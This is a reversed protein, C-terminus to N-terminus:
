INGTLVEKNVNDLLTGKSMVMVPKNLHNVIATDHTAVVVTTGHLNIKQLLKVIEISSKEDLNGTPEDALLIPPSNVIARALCSKQLEGGSLENPFHHAKDELGVKELAQMTKIAVEKRSLGAIQLALAVNEWVTRYPLMRFDQFLIGINRRFYPIRSPPITRLDQGLVIVRGQQPVQERSIVRFLSTKGSGSEGVLFIFDNKRIQFNVGRLATIGTPYTLTVNELHIIM